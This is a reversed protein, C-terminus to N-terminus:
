NSKRGEVNVNLTGGPTIVPNTISMSYIRPFRSNRSNTWNLSGTADDLLGMDKGDSGTNNAPGAAITFDLLPNTTGNNAAAGAAMQPDQNAVNGGADSNSNSNWPTNNSSNFTINNNFTSNSNGTAANRRVFINNTILLNACNSFCPIDPSGQTLWLNHDFLVTSSSHTFATIAAGQTFFCNNRFVCNTYVSSTTGLVTGTIFANGEFQYNLFTNNPENIFVDSGFRNRIFRISDCKPNNFIIQSNFVMGQFETNSCGAGTLNVSPGSVTAAYTYTKDPAWGPGIIVLRKNTFSFGSYDIPSGHVYITDGSSSANIASQITSYQGLTTSPSNSVTRITANSFLGAFLTTSFLFKKM